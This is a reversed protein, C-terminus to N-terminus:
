AAARERDLEEKTCYCRYAAGQTLLGAAAQRYLDLRESQRYPGHPGGVDPGEDWTLGLWHFGAFIAAEYDPRNRELDTDDIRLVFTGAHGRAFLLNYLATRASGLHVYGTPSPAMRVRVPRESVGSM